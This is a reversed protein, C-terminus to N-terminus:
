IELMLIYSVYNVGYLPTFRRMNQQVEVIFLNENFYFYQFFIIIIVWTSITLKVFGNERVFNYM